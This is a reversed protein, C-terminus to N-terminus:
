TLAGDGCGLDLVRKGTWSKGKQEILQYAAYSVAYPGPLRADWHYAGCKFYKEFKGTQAQLM